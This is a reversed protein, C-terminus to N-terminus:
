FYIITIGQNLFYIIIIGQCTKFVHPNELGYGKVSRSSGTLGFDSVKVSGDSKILIDIKKFLNFKSAPKIDRHIIKKREHLFKLGKL